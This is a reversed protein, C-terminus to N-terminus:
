NAAASKLASELLALVEAQAPVNKAEDAIRRAERASIGALAAKVGAIKSPDMSLKRLGLGCLLVAGRPDGAMEGCVSVPKGAQHFAQIVMDLTRVMAPSFSQYYPTMAPNMRDAACLYQCLDNTGISAFDAEAAALDAIVAIAPIEIMIGLKVEGYPIGAAKLAAKAAELAIRGARIDELSGVMPLMIGLPGHVAARLAARLQTDLLEPRSLCLRLARVGLFPNQEEPLPLYSLTKDGGIDLTRLTVPRGAANQLVQRYARYQTEEDPLEQSEMYLFETRFLGVFDCHEFTKSPCACGINIGVEYATGDAMLAPKNLYEDAIATRYLHAAGKEQLAAETAPEPQLFIEGSLADVGVTIGGSLLTTCNEVGVVAPIRYSNAIIATHSTSSGEETIIGLVNARDLTATDSPLLDKAVIVCPKPLASLNQGKGGSLVRLLRSCVDRFDIARAAILPDPAAAILAIFEEYVKQVAWEAMEGRKAIGEVVMELIEEDELIERHAAFIGSHEKDACGAILADLEDKVQVLATLFREQQAAEDGAQCHEKKIKESVTKYLYVPGLAVGPSVANGRLIMSEM